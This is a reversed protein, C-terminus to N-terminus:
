YEGRGGVYARTYFDKWSNVEDQQLRTLPVSWFKQIDMGEVKKM